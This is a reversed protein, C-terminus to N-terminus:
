TSYISPISYLTEQERKRKERSGEWLMKLPPVYRSLILLDTLLTDDAMRGWGVVDVNVGVDTLHDGVEIGGRAPSDEVERLKWVDVRLEPV